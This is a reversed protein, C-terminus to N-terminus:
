CLLVPNFQVPIFPFSSCLSLFLSLPDVTPLPVIVAGSQRQIQAGTVPDPVQMDAGCVSSSQAGLSVSKSVSVNWGFLSFVSLHLTAFSLVLTHYAFPVSCLFSHSLIAHWSLFERGM